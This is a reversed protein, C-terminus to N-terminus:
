SSLEEDPICTYIGHVTYGQNFTANVKSKANAPANNGGWGTTVPLSAYNGDGSSARIKCPLPGFPGGPQNPLWTDRPGLCTQKGDCYKALYASADRPRCKAGSNYMPSCIKNLGNEVFNCTPMSACFGDVCAMCAGSGPDVECKGGVCKMGDGCNRGVSCNKGLTESCAKTLVPYTGNVVRVCDSNKSCPKPVCVGSSSDCITGVGCDSDASCSAATTLDIGSGCTAQLTSDPTVSCQGYPDDVEIYAGIINIKTGAPCQIQPENFSSGGKAGVLSMGQEPLISAGPSVNNRNVTWPPSPPSLKGMFPYIINAQQRKSNTEETFFTLVAFGIIAVILIFIVLLSWWAM